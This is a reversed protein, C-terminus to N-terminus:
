KPNSHARMPAWHSYFVKGGILISAGPFDCTAGQKFEFEVGALVIKKDFTGRKKCKISNSSQIVLHRSSDGFCGM